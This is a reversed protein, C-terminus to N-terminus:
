LLLHTKGTQCDPIIRKEIDAPLKQAPISAQLTSLVELAKESSLTYIPLGEQKQLNNPPVQTKQEFESYLSKSMSFIMRRNNDGKNMNIAIHHVRM